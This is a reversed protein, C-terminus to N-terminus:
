KPAMLARRTAERWNKFMQARLAKNSLPETIFRRPPIRIAVTEPSIPKWDKYRKFLEAARGTLGASNGQSALWLTFFLARMRPTVAITVGQHLAVGINYAKDTRLIGAFAEFDSVMQHTVSMFLDGHDVLPKSSGKIAMQLTSNAAFKGGQIERRIAAVALLANQGTARRLEPALRASVAKPDLIARLRDMGRLEIQIKV